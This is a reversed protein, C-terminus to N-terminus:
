APIEVVLYEKEIFYGEIQKRMKDGETELNQRYKLKHPLNEGQAIRKYFHASLRFYSNFKSLEPCFEQIFILHLCDIRIPMHTHRKHRLKESEQFYPVFNEVDGIFALLEEKASRQFVPNFKQVDTQLRDSDPFNSPCSGLKLKLFRYYGFIDNLSYFQERL